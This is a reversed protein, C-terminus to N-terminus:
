PQGGSEYHYYIENVGSATTNGEATGFVTAGIGALAIESQYNGSSILIQSDYPRSPPGPVIEVRYDRGAVEDPINFETTITATNYFPVVAYLDVIRTSVGNGIDTFAYTLLQNTPQDIFVSTVLPVVIVLLLLLIGSIIIYEVM